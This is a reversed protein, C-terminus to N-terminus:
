RAAATMRTTPRVSVAAANAASAQAMAPGSAQCTVTPRGLRTPSPESVTTRCAPACSSRCPVGYRGVAPRDCTSAYSGYSGNIATKPSGFAAPRTPQAPLGRSHSARPPAAPTYRAKRIGPWVLASASRDAANAIAEGTRDRCTAVPPVSTGTMASSHTASASVARAGDAGADRRAPTATPTAQASLTVAQGATGTRAAISAARRSGFAAARNEKTEASVAMAAIAAAAGAASRSGPEASCFATRNGRPRVRCRVGAALGSGPWRSAVAPGAPSHAAMASSAAAAAANATENTSRGGRVVRAAVRRSAAPSATNKV